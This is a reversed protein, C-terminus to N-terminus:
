SLVWARRKEVMPVVPEILVNKAVNSKALPQEPLNGLPLAIDRCCPINPQTENVNSAPQPTCSERGGMYLADEGKRGSALDWAASVGDDELNTGTTM